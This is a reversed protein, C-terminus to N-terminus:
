SCFLPFLFVLRSHATGDIFHLQECACCQGILLPRKASICCFTLLMVKLKEREASDFRHAEFFSISRAIWQAVENTSILLAFSLYFLSCARPTFIGTECTIKPPRTRSSWSAEASISQVAIILTNPLVQSGLKMGFSWKM